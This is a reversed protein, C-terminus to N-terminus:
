CRIYFCLNNLSVGTTVLSVMAMPVERTISSNAHHRKFLNDHRTAFADDGGSFFLDRIATIIRANRYPLTRRALM